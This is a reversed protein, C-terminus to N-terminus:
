KTRPLYVNFPITDLSYIDNRFQLQDRDNVWATLYVIHINVPKLLNIAKSKQADITELIRQKNWDSKNALLYQALDIPKGIRICGHSLDRKNSRFLAPTSTDHLYIGCSNQFIFKIRGLPNDQGPDQRLKYPFSTKDMTTWKINTVDVEKAHPGYSTFAKIHNKSLYQADKKLKPLIDNQTISNPIYWYPNVDLYTIQSSLVCSQLGNDKGVIVPMSLVSQGSEFVNLSYDPINVLIYPNGLDNSLYRLRDMNLEIQKIRELLSINLANITSKGIVGDNQLGNNQQFAIIAQKLKNDYLYERNKTTQTLYNTLELRQRILKIRKNRTGVTLKPGSPIAPFHVNNVALNIYFQLKSKLAQYQANQPILSALEDKLNNNQMISTLTHQLNINHHDISWNPYYTKADVRGFVLNSTYAFFSNTLSVDLCAVLNPDISSESAANSVSNIMSEIQGINYDNPNLGDLYSLKLISILDTAGPNVGNQDFWISTDDNQAYFSKTLPSLAINNLNCQENLTSSSEIASYINDSIKDSLGEAFIFNHLSFLIFFLKFYTKIKM